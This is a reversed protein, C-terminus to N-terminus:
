SPGHCSSAWTHPSKLPPADRGPSVKGPFVTPISVVLTAQPSATDEGCGWQQLSQGWMKAVTGIHLLCGKEEGKGDMRLRKEQILVLGSGKLAEWQMGVAPTPQAGTGTSNHWSPMGAHAVNGVGRSLNKPVRRARLLIGDDGWSIVTGWM